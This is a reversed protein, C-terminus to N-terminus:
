IIFFDCLCLFESCFFSLFQLLEVQGAPYPEDDSRQVTIHGIEKTVITGNGERLRLFDNFTFSFFSIHMYYSLPGELKSM